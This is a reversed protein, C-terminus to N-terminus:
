KSEDVEHFEGDVVGPEDSQNATQGAPLKKLLINMHEIVLDDPCLEVFLYTGLWIILADDVAFPIRDPVVLYVLTSLPLLKILFNVRRDRMLRIILKIRLGIDQFFGSGSSRMLQKRMDGTM